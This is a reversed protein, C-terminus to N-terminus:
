RIYSHGVVPLIRKFRYQNVGRFIAEFYDQGDFQCILNLEIAINQSNFIELLYLMWSKDPIDNAMEAVITLMDFVSVVGRPFLPKQNRTKAEEDKSAVFCCSGVWFHM